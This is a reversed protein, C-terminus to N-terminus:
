ISLTRTQLIKTTLIPSFFFISGYTYLDKNAEQSGSPNNEEVQAQTGPGNSCDPNLFEKDVFHPSIVSGNKEKSSTKQVTPGAYNIINDRTDANIEESLATNPIVTIDEESKDVAAKSHESTIPMEWSFPEQIAKWKGAVLAEMRGVEREVSNILSNESNSDELDDSKESESQKEEVPETKKKLVVAFSRGDRRAGNSVPFSRPHPNFGSLNYEKRHNVYAARVKRQGIWLDDITKVLRDGDCVGVFSVFTFRRDVRTRRNPIYVDIVKGWKSLWVFVDRTNWEDEIECIDIEVGDEPKPHPLYLMGANPNVLKWRYRLVLHHLLLAVQLRALMNGACIRSGGGFVLYSGPKAAKDWRDPNFCMPDEFNEANTHLYRVWCAVKWGKPIKYGKYDVDETATRLVIPAINALRIIEEVVKNTYKCSAIEEYTIFDGNLKKAIPMHEERLKEVVNPYKALYYIAWMIALSTSAYGAILLSVINDLVETDTLRNGEEDEIQMLGEMLDNKAKSGDCNIKRKELEERFISMAKKRCKLAYHLVTGPFNLPYARLGNVVGTYLEDLTDLVLSPEFSAFYKGINACTVKKAEDYARIRHKQSWLKLATTLRPQLMLTIKRLSDPQNIARVVLSRVRTHSAGEVAVLSTSGVLEVSPWELRFSGETQLVFKNTSPTCAIITPSGFLHTRYLGVGDGYKRRKADIFDDPRRLLKFYWLFALMEGLFPLGMYGPPLKARGRFRFPLAYWYDNWWWLLGAALAIVVVVGLGGTEIM